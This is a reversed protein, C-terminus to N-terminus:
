APHIPLRQLCVSPMMPWSHPTNSARLNRRSPGTALLQRSPGRLRMWRAGSGSSLSCGRVGPAAPRPPVGPTVRRRTFHRCSGTQLQRAPTQGPNVTAAAATSAASQIPARPSDAATPIGQRSSLLALATGAVQHQHQQRLRLSPGQWLQQQSQRQQQAGVPGQRVAATAAMLASPTSAHCSHPTLSGSQVLPHLPHQQWASAHSAGPKM